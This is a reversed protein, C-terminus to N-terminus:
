RGHITRYERYSWGTLGALRGIGVAALFLGRAAPGRGRPARWAAEGLGRLLCWGGHGAIRWRAVRADGRREIRSQSAGVRLARRLLWGLRARSPPVWESTRAEDCWVIRHGRAAFRAFFESDSSGALALTEDFLADMAALARVGVLVNHTYAVALAAGTAHRPHEFLGSEEIWRPPASEFAPLAPGTVAQAGTERQTRLLELLWRSDPVEDDDVFAVFDAYPLSEALAANRAQPIGRRKETRYVLPFPLWLAADECVERASGEADNDVVVVRLEPAPEPLRLAAIGGLLRYLGRPRLCTIVCVDVRM